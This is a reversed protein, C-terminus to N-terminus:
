AVKAFAVTSGVNLKEFGPKRLQVALSAPGFAPPLPWRRPLAMDADLSVCCCQGDM